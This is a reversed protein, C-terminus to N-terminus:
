DETEEFEKALENWKMQGDYSLLDVNYDAIVIFADLLKEKEKGM